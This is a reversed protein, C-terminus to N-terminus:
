VPILVDLDVVRYPSKKTQWTAKLVAKTEFADNFTTVLEYVKNDCKVSGGVVLMEVVPTLKVGGEGDDAFAYRVGDHTVTRM